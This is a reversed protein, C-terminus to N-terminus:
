VRAQRSRLPLRGPLPTMRESRNPLRASVPLFHCPPWPGSVQLQRDELQDFGSLVFKKCAEVRVGRERAEALESLVKKDDCRFLSFTLRRKAHRIVHLLTDRREDPSLIVLERGM